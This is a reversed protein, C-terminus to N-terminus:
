KLEELTQDRFAELNAKISEKTAIVLARMAITADDKNHLSRMRLFVEDPMEGDLEEENEVISICLDIAKKVVEEKEKDDLAKQAKAAVQMAVLIGSDCANKNQQYIKSMELCSVLGESDAQIPYYNNSQIYNLAKNLQADRIATIVYKITELIDETVEFDSLNYKKQMEKIAAIGEKDSLEIQEKIDM